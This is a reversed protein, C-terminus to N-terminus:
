LIRGKKWGEKFYKEKDKIYIFKNKQNNNIWTKGRNAISIKTKDKIIRGRKWGSNLYKESDEKKITISDIGNTIWCKGYNSNKSGQQFSKNALSQKIKNITEQKHKRGYWLGKLEGNIYRQDNNDIRFHEGKSNKVSFNGQTPTIYLNRNKKFEERLVYGYNSTFIYMNRFTCYIDRNEDYVKKTLYVYKKSIRDFATIMNKTNFGGGKIINYCNDDNILQENVIKYEYLLADERTSFFYLIEKTFNKVGYKKIARKLRKGSGMYNDDINETSHIGYYFHKNINNTIKYFYNVINETGM